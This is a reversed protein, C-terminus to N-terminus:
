PQSPNFARILGCGVIPMDTGSIFLEAESSRRGPQWSGRSVYASRPWHQARQWTELERVAQVAPDAGLERATANMARDGSTLAQMSTRKLDDAKISFGGKPPKKNKIKGVTQLNSTLIQCIQQLLRNLYRDLRVVRDGFIM